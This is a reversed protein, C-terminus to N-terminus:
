IQLLTSLLAASFPWVAACSLPHLHCHHCQQQSLLCLFPQKISSLWLVAWVKDLLLTLPTLAPPLIVPSLDWQKPHRQGASRCTMAQPSRSSIQCFKLLSFTSCPPLAQHQSELTAMFYLQSFLSTHCLAVSNHCNEAVPIQITLLIHQSHRIQKTFDTHIWPDPICSIPIVPLCIIESLSSYYLSKM